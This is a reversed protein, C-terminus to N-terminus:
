NLNLIFSVLKPVIRFLINTETTETRYQFLSNRHKSGFCGSSCGSVNRYPAYQLKLSFKPNNRNTKTQKSVTQKTQKSEIGFCLTEINQDFRFLCFVLRFLKISLM